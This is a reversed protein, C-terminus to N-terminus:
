GIQQTTETFVVGRKALEDVVLSYIRADRGLVEPPQVGPSSFEGKALMAAVIACPFGTTRAMSTNGASDTRDLLGYTFRNRAEGKRGEVVVRLVTLEQEHAPRRWLEFMLKETMRRPVVKVGDVEIAEDSFFGTERLMRMRDVHGPYRLTKEKMNTAPVTTLLTRLGDTNFAELTGVGPFDILEVESLAPRTVVQRNEILRAPRTYEEIVDTPSFVSRYEFPWYREVPLGGVFIVGNDISDLQAAARGIALNSLGPSVGCDVVCTVGKERALDDLVLPSEPSFSIDSISKGSEIVTRLMAFGLRGPVAGVVADADRIVEAIASGSSLDARRTKVNPEGAVNALNSESVDAVTVEVGGTRALDRVILSGVLGCGLVVVNKM